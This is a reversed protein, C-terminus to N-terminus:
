GQFGGGHARRLDDIDVDLLIAGDVGSVRLKSRDTVEGVHASPLAALEREFAAASGEAVECLFRSCSESYLRTGDPDHRVASSDSPAALGAVPVGALRLDIGLGGGFAMEAAAVALGGESLDHCALVHGSRIARHMARMLNPAVTLDPRPVTGGTRGLLTLWHSGGLEPRTTGVLYLRSGARKADMSVTRAVDPVVSLASILLTPPIAITESGLRYENNLSDKGSIFPTGYAM